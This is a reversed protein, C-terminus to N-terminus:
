AAKNFHNIAKKVVMIVLDIEQSTINFHPTFRLANKGGHIVGVGHNRCFEEVAGFGVVKMKEPNLEACLLLGTGEVLTIVEPFETQLETLKHVFEVGREKINTRVEPTISKLVASAVELARPNATMTNGYIGQVYSEAARPGMALVSMPFQGANLAKSFTEMDPPSCDEFGPYDTISLSGTGRFGAQISDIVLLSGHAETLKRAVDYFDRALARGPVGEGMVPEVFMVEIFVNDQEAQKFADRLASIDNPEVTILNDRDRFTALNKQYTSLSSDSVQAPRDTRGHFAGALSLMKITKGAHKAGADTM